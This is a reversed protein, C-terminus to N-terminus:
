CFRRLTVAYGPFAVADAGLRAAGRALARSAVPASIGGAEAVERDLFVGGTGAAAVVGPVRADREIEAVLADAPADQSSAGAHGTATIAVLADPVQDRVLRVVTRTIGDMTRVRGDLVVGMLDAAGDPAGYGAELLQAVVAAAPRGDTVVDDRDHGLYWTGGILGRDSPVGAVLGIRSRQGTGEDLDDGLFAIVPLPARESWAPVVAGDAARLLSGTVGHHSPLAGSGITSLVAAPDVPLSGTSADMTSAGESALSRLRPWSTPAAELADSGVGKWVIVVLLPSRASRLTVGPLAEGTRVDPHPRRIGAIRELTPALRDLRVGDPLAGARVGTGVLVMPVRTTAPDMSWRVGTDGGLDTAVQGFALVDPSRAERFGAAILARSDGPLGCFAPPEAAPPPEPCSKGACAARLVVAPAALVALATLLM